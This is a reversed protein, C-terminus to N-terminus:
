FVFLIINDSSVYDTVHLTWGPWYYRSGITNIVSTVGKHGNDDHCERLISLQEEKEFVVLVSNQVRCHIAFTINLM